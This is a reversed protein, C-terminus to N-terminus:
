KVLNQAQYIPLLVSLVVFGVVVGMSLVIIPEAMSVLRRMSTDVEFDLSDAVRGLMKPLDGTEEGVAVMHTLVPPFASADRMADAMPRGARVEEEVARASKLFVRNNASLGAIELAELIPVGGYVLTGLVRAFQSVTAKQVVKGVGPTALLITDRSEAGAPTAFWARLGIVTGAIVVIIALWNKTIFASSELLMRTTMPLDSGLGQFVGSMRPLVFTILFVIVLFSTTALVGPYVLASTIQGRRTVDLEQYDALRGAVEGFQGSAEGARLTQTFVPNFFKPHKALAQSVPTGSRVDALAEDSIRKLVPSESQEGVVQLVRDLPLGALALDALRRTFLALDQKSPARGSGFGTKDAASQGSASRESEHIDLVFRGDAALRSIAADRTEADIAGSRRTGAADLATYSFTQTSM